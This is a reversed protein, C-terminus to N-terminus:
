THFGLKIMSNQQWKGEPMCKWQKIRNKVIKMIEKIKLLCSCVEHNWAISNISDLWAFNILAKTPARCEHYESWYQKSSINIKQIRSSLIWSYAKYENNLYEQKGYLHPHKSILYAKEVGYGYFEVFTYARILCSWSQHWLQNGQHKNSWRQHFICVM